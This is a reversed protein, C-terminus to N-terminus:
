SSLKRKLINGTIILMLATWLLLVLFNIFVPEPTVEYGHFAHELIGVAYYVPSLHAIAWIINGDFREPELSGSDIYLPLALGFILSAVPLTRKLAAGLAAGACSFIIICTFLALVMEVPHAPIVGYGTIVLASSFALALAAYADAALIRGILPALPHVPATLLMKSTGSEFERAAAAASLIGAVIFASLALASVALYPIFGTDHKILDHEEVRVRIGQLHLNRAFSVVASPMARQIDQTMDTDINDVLADIYIINGKAIAKSFGRPITIVAVLEGRKVASLAEERNMLKIAFSHRAAEMNAIFIRSYLEGDENVVATPARSGTLGFISVLLIFTVSQIVTLIILLPSRGLQVAEARAAGTVASLFNKM